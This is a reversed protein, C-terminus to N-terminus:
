SAVTDTALELVFSRLARVRDESITIDATPFGINRSAEYNASPVTIMSTPILLIDSGVLFLPHLVTPSTSLSDTDWLSTDMVGTGPPTPSIVTAEKISFVNILLSLLPQYHQM